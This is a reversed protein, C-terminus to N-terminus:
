SFTANLQAYLQGAPCLSVLIKVYRDGTALRPLEFGPTEFMLLNERTSPHLNVWQSHITRLLAEEESPESPDDSTLAGFINESPPQYTQMKRGYQHAQLKRLALIFPEAEFQLEPVSQGEVHRLRCPWATPLFEAIISLIPYLPRSNHSEGDSPLVTLGILANLLLSKGADVMGCFAISFHEKKSRLIAEQLVRELEEVARDFEPREADDSYPSHRKLHEVTGSWLLEFLSTQLASLERVQANYKPIREDLWAKGIRRAFKEHRTAAERNCNLIAFPNVGPPPIRGPSVAFPHVRFADLVLDLAHWVRGQFNDLIDIPIRGNWQQNVVYNYWVLKFAHKNHHQCMLIEDAADKLDGILDVLNGPRFNDMLVNLAFNLISKPKESRFTNMTAESLIAAPNEELVLRTAMLAKTLGEMGELRHYQSNIVRHTYSSSHFGVVYQQIFDLNSDKELLVKYLMIDFKLNEIGKRLDKQTQQDVHEPELANDVENCVLTAAADVARLIALIDDPDVTAPAPLPSYPPPAPSPPPSPPIDYVYLHRQPLLSWM